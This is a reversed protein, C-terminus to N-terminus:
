PGRMEASDEEQQFQEINASALQEALTLLVQELTRLTAAAHVHQQAQSVTNGNEADELSQEKSPTRGPVSEHSNGAEPEKEALSRASPVPTSTVDGDLEDEVADQETFCGQDTEPISPLQHGQQQMILNQLRKGFSQLLDQELSLCSEEAGPEQQQQEQQIYQHCMVVQKEVNQLLQEVSRLREMFTPSRQLQKSQSASLQEELIDLAEEITQLRGDLENRATHFSPCLTPLSSDSSSVSLRSHDSTVGTVAAEEKEDPVLVDCVQYSSFESSGGDDILLSSQFLAEANADEMGPPEVMLSSVVRKAAEAESSIQDNGSFDMNRECSEDETIFISRPVHRDPSVVATVNNNETDETNLRLSENDLIYANSPTKAAYEPSARTVENSYGYDVADFYPPSDSVDNMRGSSTGAVLIDRLDSETFKSVYNLDKRLRCKRPSKEPSQGGAQFLAESCTTDTVVYRDKKEADGSSSVIASDPSSLPSSLNEEGPSVKGSGNGDMSCSYATGQQTGPGVAHAGGFAMGAMVGLETQFLKAMTEFSDGGEYTDARLDMAGQSISVDDVCWSQVRQAPFLSCGERGLSSAVSPNLSSGPDVRSSDGIRPQGTQLRPPTLQRTLDELKKRTQEWRCTVLTKCTCSRASSSTQTSSNRSRRDSSAPSRPGSEDVAGSSYDSDVPPKLFGAPGGGRPRPGRRHVHQYNAVIDLVVDIENQQLRAEFEVEYLDSSRTDNDSSSSDSNTIVYIPQAQPPYYGTISWDSSHEPVDLLRQRPRRCELEETRSYFDLRPESFSHFRRATKNGLPKSMRQLPQPITSVVASAQNQKTAVNTTLSKSTLQERMPAAFEDGHKSQVTPTGSCTPLQRDVQRVHEPHNGGHMVVGGNAVLRLSNAHDPYTPSHAPSGWHRDIDLQHARMLSMDSTAVNSSEATIAHRSM